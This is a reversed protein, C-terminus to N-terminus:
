LQDFTCTEYAKFLMNYAAFIAMKQDQYATNITKQEMGVPVISQM